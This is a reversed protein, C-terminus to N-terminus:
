VPVSDISYRDRLSPTLRTKPKDALWCGPDAHFPDGHVAAAICRSGGGCTRAYFCRECGRSIRERDRLEQFLRSTDYIQELKERFLNGVVLPMRRCPCVDGNPLVTILTDGASCRYPRDGTVMFQLSRHLSVPRSTLWGRRSEVRMLGFFERTEDPTLLSDAAARGRGCPVLRDAWVRAIGLRHGLQAVHPFDRFNSRHATFSIHAPIHEGALRRLGSVAQEYSGKGRINDHTEQDGDISVQVFGPKLRSLSRVVSSDLMTGNTLVAFSFLRSEAALKELLPIFDQRIFPEGGTVTVHARFRKKGSLSRSSRIFSKFQELVEMLDDWAPEPCPLDEQYCHICRLNCRETIHWQFLIHGPWYGTTDQKFYM